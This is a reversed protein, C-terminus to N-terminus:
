YPPCTSISSVSKLLQASTWIATKLSWLKKTHVKVKLDYVLLNDQFLYLLDDSDRLEICGTCINGIVELIDLGICQPERFTSEGFFSIFPLPWAVSVPTFIVSLAQVVPISYPNQPKKLWQRILHLAFICLMFSFSARLFNKSFVDDLDFPEYRFHLSRSWALPDLFLSNKLASVCKSFLNIRTTLMTFEIHLVIHLPSSSFSQVQGFKAVRVAKFYRAPIRENVLDM